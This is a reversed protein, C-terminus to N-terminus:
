LLVSITVYLFNVVVLHIANQNTLSRHLIRRPPSGILAYKVIVIHTM